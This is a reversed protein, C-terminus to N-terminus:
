AEKREGHTFIEVVNKSGFEDLKSLIEQSKEPQGHTKFFEALWRLERICVSIDKDNGPMQGIVQINRKLTQGAILNKTGL